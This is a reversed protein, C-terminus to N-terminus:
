PHTGTSILAGHRSLFELALALYAQSGIGNPDHDPRREYRKSPKEGSKEATEDSVAPVICIVLTLMSLLCHVFRSMESNGSM